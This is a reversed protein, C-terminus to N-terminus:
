ILVDEEAILIHSNAKIKQKSISVRWLLDIVQEQTDIVLTDCQMKLRTQESGAILDIQPPQYPLDLTQSFQYKQMPSFGSLKLQWGSQYAQSLRQDSPAYNYFYEVLASKYPYEGLMLQAQDIKPVNNVRPAWHLPIPAYSAVEAQHSPKRYESQAYEIQPLPKSIAERNSYKYGVGAPNQAFCSSAKGNGLGGFAHQYHIALPTLFEPESAVPGLLSRRWVRKGTIRLTKNLLTQQQADFLQLQTEIVRVAQGKPPYATFAGYVEFGQKFPVLENASLLVPPESESYQDACHIDRSSDLASLEGQENYEFSQKVVVVQIPNQQTDWDQSTAVQWNSENILM